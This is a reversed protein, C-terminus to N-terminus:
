ERNQWREELRQLFTGPARAAKAAGAVQGGISSIAFYTGVLAIVFGVIGVPPIQAILGAFLVGIGALIMIASVLARPRHVRKASKGSLASVLKPDEASLAQEMQELLRQERESLPM